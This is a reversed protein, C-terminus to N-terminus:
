LVQMEASAVAIAQDLGLGSPSKSGGYEGHGWVQFRQSKDWCKVSQQLFCELPHELDHEPM